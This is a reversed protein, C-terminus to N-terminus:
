RWAKGSMSPPSTISKLFLEAKAQADLRKTVLNLKGGFSRSCFGTLAELARPSGTVPLCPWFYVPIGMAMMAIARSADTSHGAEAFYAAVPYEKLAKKGARSLAMLVEASNCDIVPPVDDGTRELVQKLGDSCAKKEGPNLLGYKALAVSAEGESLCLIDKGLFAKAITVFEKDQTYRVNNSGAFIAIGKIMNKDVAEVIGDINLTRSSYGFVGEQVSDPIDRLLDRRLDFSEEAMRVIEAALVGEELTQNISGPSVVKVNFERALEKLAPSVYHDGAVVLDIAGTIIPIEQAGYNTLPAFTYPPIIPDTSLGTVSINKDKALHAILYKIVPSIQGCVMVNPADKALVGLNVKIGTPNVPGFLAGKLRDQLNRALMGLLSARVAWLINGEVSTIGGGLKQFAKIVDRAIGQPLVRNSAWCQFREKPIDESNTQLGKELLSKIDSQLQRVSAPDKPDVIKKDLADTLDNLADLETMIGKLALRLLSQSALIDRDKGCIGLKNDDKFPHSICPGQLCDRCSLGAECFGCLPLQSEYRDWSLPIEQDAAKLIFREVCNDASKKQIYEM